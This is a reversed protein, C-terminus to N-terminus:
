RLCIMLRSNCGLPVCRRPDSYPGDRTRGGFLQRTGPHGDEVLGMGAEAPSTGAGVQCIGAADIYFGPWTVSQERRLVVM